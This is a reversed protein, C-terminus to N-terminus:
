RGTHVDKKEQREEKGRLTNQEGGYAKGTESVWYYPCHDAYEHEDKEGCQTNCNENEPCCICCEDHGCFDSPLACKGIM